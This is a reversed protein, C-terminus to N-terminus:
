LGIYKKKMYEDVHETPAKMHIIASVQQQPALIFSNGELSKRLDIAVATITSLDKPKETTWITDDDIDADGILGASNTSLHINKKTAYLVKADIGKSIASSVDVSQLTGKWHERDGANNELVDFLVLNSANATDQSSYQLRYSYTEGALVETSNVYKM